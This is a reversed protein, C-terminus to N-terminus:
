WKRGIRGSVPCRNRCAHMLRRDWKSFTRPLFIHVKWQCCNTKPYIDTSEKNSQYTPLYAASWGARAARSDRGPPGPCPLLPEKLDSKTLHLFYSSRGGEQVLRLRTWMKTYAPRTRRRGAPRSTAGRACALFSLAQSPWLRVSAVQAVAGAQMCPKPRYGLKSAQAPRRCQTHALATHRAWAKTM